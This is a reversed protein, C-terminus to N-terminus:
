YATFFRSDTGGSAIKFTVPRACRPCRGEYASAQRNVYVRSYVNCCNFQVGLFRRRSSDDRDPEQNPESCHDFMEGAM